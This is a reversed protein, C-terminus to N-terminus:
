DLPKALPGSIRALRSWGPKIGPRFRAILEGELRIEVHGSVLICAVQTDPTIRRFEEQTCYKRPNLFPMLAKDTWTSEEPTAVVNYLWVDAVIEGHQQLYAYAVRGDDEIIVSMGSDAVECLRRVKTFRSTM